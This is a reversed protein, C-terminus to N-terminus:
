DAEGLNVPLLSVDNSGESGMFRAAEAKDAFYLPGEPLTVRILYDPTPGSFEIETAGEINHATVQDNKLYLKRKVGPEQESPRRQHKNHPDIAGLAQLM